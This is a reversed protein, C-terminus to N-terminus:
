MCDDLDLHVMKHLMNFFARNRQKFARLKAPDKLETAIAPNSKWVYDHWYQKDLGTWIKKYKELEVNLIVTIHPYKAHKHYSHFFKDKYHVADEDDQLNFNAWVYDIAANTKNWDKPTQCHFDWDRLSLANKDNLKERSGGLFMGLGLMKNTIDKVEDAEENTLTPRNLKDLETQLYKIQIELSEKNPSVKKVPEWGSSVSATDIGHYLGAHKNKHGYYVEKVDNWVPQAPVFQVAQEAMVPILENFDLEKKWVENVLGDFANKAKVM